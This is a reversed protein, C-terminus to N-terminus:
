KTTAGCSPCQKQRGLPRTCLPDGCVRRVGIRQFLKGAVVGGGLLLLGLVWDARWIRSALFGAVAGLGGGWWLVEVGPRLRIPEVRRGGNWHLRLQVKHVEARDVLARLFGVQGRLPLWWAVVHGFFVNWGLGSSRGIDARVVDPLAQEVYARLQKVAEAPEADAFELNGNPLLRYRSRALWPLLSDVARAIAAIEAPGFVITQPALM